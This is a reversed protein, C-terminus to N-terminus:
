QKLAKHRWLEASRVSTTEAATGTHLCRSQSAWAARSRAMDRGAARKRGWMQLAQFTEWQSCSRAFARSHGPICPPILMQTGWPLLQVRGEALGPSLPRSQALPYGVARSAGPGAGDGRRSEEEQKSPLMESNPPRLNLYGEARQALAM